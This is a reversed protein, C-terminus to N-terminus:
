SGEPDALRNPDFGEPLYSATVWGGDDSYSPEQYSAAGVPPTGYDFAATEIPRTGVNILRMLVSNGNIMWIENEPIGMIAAIAIDGYRTSITSVNEIDALETMRRLGEVMTNYATESMAARNVTQQRDSLYRITDELLYTHAPEGAVDFTEVQLNPDM